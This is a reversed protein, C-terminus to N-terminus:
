QGKQIPSKQMEAYITEAIGRGDLGYHAMVEPSAGNYPDEDPMGLIKMRVPKHQSLFEAAAAGLGGHINHEEVTVVLETKAAQLIAETDLPRLSVM